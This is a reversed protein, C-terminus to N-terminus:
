SRRFGGNADQLGALYHLHRDKAEPEKGLLALSAIAFHTTDVFAPAGAPVSAYGGSPVSCKKIFEGAQSFKRIDYGSCSLTSLVHYTSTVDPQGIGFGGNKENNLLWEFDPRKIESGLTKLIKAACFVPRFPSDDVGYDASLWKSSFAELHARKKQIAAQLETVLAADAEPKEGLFLLSKMAYFIVAPSDYMGNDARIGKVYDHTKGRSPIEEGLVALTALAYYTESISSPFEFRYLARAFTYGGDSNLRRRVFSSLEKSDVLASIEM